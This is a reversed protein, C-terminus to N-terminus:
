EVNIRNDGGARRPSGAMNIAGAYPFELGGLCSRPSHAAIDRRLRGQGGRMFPRTDYFPDSKFTIDRFLSSIRRPPRLRENRLSALLLMPLSCPSM